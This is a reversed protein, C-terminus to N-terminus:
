RQDISNTLGLGLCHQQHKIRALPKTMVYRSDDGRNPLLGAGLAEEVSQHRIYHPCLANVAGQNDCLIITTKVVAGDWFTFM